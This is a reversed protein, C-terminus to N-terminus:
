SFNDQYWLRVDNMCPPSIEHGMDYEKCVSKARSNKYFDMIQRGSEIPIVEDYCGHTILLPFDEINEKYEEKFIKDNFRGSLCIAGDLMEPNRLLTGHTLISGQSFGFLILKEFRERVKVLEDKLIDLAEFAEPENYTIGYPSFNLNFWARGGFLGMMDLELPAQYSIVHTQPFLQHLDFLDHMNAGYGHLMVLCKDSEVSNNISELM